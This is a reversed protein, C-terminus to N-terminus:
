TSPCGLPTIAKFKAQLIIDGVYYGVGFKADIPEPIESNHFGWNKWEAHKAPRGSLVTLV